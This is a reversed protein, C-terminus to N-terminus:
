KDETETVPRRRRMDTWVDILGTVALMALGYAQILVLVFILTRLPPPVGWRALFSALIALGQFFYITGVVLLLNLGVMKFVTVPLLLTFGALIVLIVLAEPLRWETLPPWPTHARRRRLLWQGTVMNLFVTNLITVLLLGPIVGPLFERLGAITTEVELTQEPALSANNALSKGVEVLGADLSVLIDRYLSTSDSQFIGYLLAWLLWSLLLILSARLGSRVPSGEKKRAERALCLGAPLMLLTFIFGGIQGALLMILASFLLAAGITNIGRNQGSAVLYYFVPLPALIQLGVFFPPIAPLTWTLTAVLTGSPSLNLKDFFSNTDKKM